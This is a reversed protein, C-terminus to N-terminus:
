WGQKKMANVMKVMGRFGDKFRRRWREARLRKRKLGPREHFRQRMFDAKVRNRACNIDVTRFARGVDMGRNNDVAVTRGVSPGYAPLPDPIRVPEPKGYRALGGKSDLMDSISFANNRRNNNNNNNNNRSAFGAALDDLSSTTTNNSKTSAPLSSSEFHSTRGQSSTPSKNNLDLAQDVLSSFDTTRPPPTTSPLEDSSPKTRAQEQSRLCTSSLSRSQPISRIMPSPQALRFASQRTFSRYLTPLLSGATRGEM